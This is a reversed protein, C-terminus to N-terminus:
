ANRDFSMMESSHLLDAYVLPNSRAFLNIEYLLFMNEIFVCVSPTHFVINFVLNLFKTNVKKRIATSVKVRVTEHM